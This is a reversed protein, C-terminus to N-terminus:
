SYTIEYDITTDEGTGKVYGGSIIARSFMQNVAFLGFENYTGDTLDTDSIFFSLTLINYAAGSIAFSAVSNITAVATELDTDSDAAATTGTGIKAKTIAIPYTTLGALAQLILNRGYGNSSVVKNNIWDSERLLEKTGAKYTKIKFRGKPKCNEKITKQM